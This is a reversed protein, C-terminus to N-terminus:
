GGADVALEGVQLAAPEQLLVGGLGPGDAQGPRLRVAIRAHLDREESADRGASGEQGLLVDLLVEGDGGSEGGVVIM